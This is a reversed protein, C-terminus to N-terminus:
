GNQYTGVVRSFAVNEPTDVFNQALLIWQIFNKRFFIDVPLVRGPIDINFNFKIFRIQMHRKGSGFRRPYVFDPANVFSM